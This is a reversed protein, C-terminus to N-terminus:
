NARRERRESSTAREEWCHVVESSSAFDGRMWHSLASLWPRHFRTSAPSSGKWVSCMRVSICQSNTSDAPEDSPLLIRMSSTERSPARATLPLPSDLQRPTYLSLAPSCLLMSVDMRTGCKSVVVRGDDVLRIQAIEMRNVLGGM